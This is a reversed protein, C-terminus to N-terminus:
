SNFIRSYLLEHRGLWLDLSPWAQGADEVRTTWFKRMTDEIEQRAWKEALIKQAQYPGVLNARVAASVVSKVHNFLFLYAADEETLGLASTVAGWIPAFHGNPRDLESGSLRMGKSFEKLADIGPHDHTAGAKLSRDWLAVLARGQAVSARRTVNCLLCAEQEADLSTVYCPSRHSALVFPITTSALSLLSRSLFPPLTFSESPGQHALYSELGSSFAFSGLPLASDSLLFLFHSPILSQACYQTTAGQEMGTLGDDDDNPKPRDVVNQTSDSQNYAMMAEISLQCSNM